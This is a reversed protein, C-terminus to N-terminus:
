PLIVGPAGEAPQTQIECTLRLQGAIQNGDGDYVESVARPTIDFLVGASWDGPLLATEVELLITHLLDDAAEENAAEVIMDVHVQDTREQRRPTRQTIPTVDGDGVGISLAPLDTKNVARTRKVFVSTGTTTLGTLQTKILDRAQIRVHTPM